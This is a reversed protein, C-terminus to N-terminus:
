IYTYCFFPCNWTEGHCAAFETAFVMGYWVMGYWIRKNVAVQWFALIHIGRRLTFIQMGHFVTPGSVVLSWSLLVFLANFYRCDSWITKFIGVFCTSECVKSFSALGRSEPSPMVCSKHIFTLMLTLTVLSQPGSSTLTSLSWSQWIMMQLVVIQARWQRWWGIFYLWM